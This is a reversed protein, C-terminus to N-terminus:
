EGTELEVENIETAFNEIAACKCLKSCFCIEQSSFAMWSM